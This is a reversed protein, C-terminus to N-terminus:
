EPVPILEQLRLRLAPIRILQNRFAPLIRHRRAQMLVRGLAQGAQLWDHRSDGATGLVAFVPHGAAGQELRAAVAGRDAAPHIM